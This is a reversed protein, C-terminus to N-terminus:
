VHAGGGRRIRPDIVGYLLNATANGVFVIAATFVTIGALLAVDGGLAADITAKGLGPYSFVQEVLVSGGLIEAVSALQLTLAPLAVNRLGHRRVAQWHTEGRALAFAFFDSDIIDVMKERTHLTINAVGVVSLTIAPLALHRILDLVGLDASDAGIPARFGLPFWGLQVSFVMLMAMGFWFTPTSALVLCGSRIVRDLLSGRKAGAVVGLGFGLVGSILWASILLAASHAFRQAIVIGVPQNYRLSIGLDGQAVGGIWNLYRQWIPLETGWYQALQARKEPSMNLYGTSGVNMQVPDIPSIAILAFVVMSVAVLLLALKLLGQALARLRSSWLQAQDGPQGRDDRSGIASNSLGLAM